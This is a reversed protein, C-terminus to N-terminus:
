FTLIKSFMNGQIVGITTYWILYWEYHKEYDATYGLSTNKLIPDETWFTLWYNSFVNLAQFAIMSVFVLSVFGYGM